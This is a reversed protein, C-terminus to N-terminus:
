KGGYKKVIEKSIYYDDLEEKSVMLLGIKRLIELIKM